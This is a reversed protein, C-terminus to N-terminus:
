GIYPEGKGVDTAISCVDPARRSTSDQRHGHILQDKHDDYGITHTQKLQSFSVLDEDLKAEDPALLVRGLM